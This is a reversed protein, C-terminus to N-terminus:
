VESAFHLQGRPEIMGINKLELCSVVDVAMQHDGKREALLREVISEGFPERESSREVEAFLQQVRKRVRVLVADDVAIHFGVIQQQELIAAQPEGVEANRFDRM